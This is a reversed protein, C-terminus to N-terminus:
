SRIRACRCSWLRLIKSSIDQEPLRTDREYCRGHTREVGKCKPTLDLRPCRQASRFSRAVRNRPECVESFGYRCCLSWRHFLPKGFQKAFRQPSDWVRYCLWHVAISGRVLPKRGRERRYKTRRAKMRQFIGYGGVLGLSPSGPKLNTWFSLKRERVSAENPSGDGITAALSSNRSDLRVFMARTFLTGGIGPNKIMVCPLRRFINGLRSSDM